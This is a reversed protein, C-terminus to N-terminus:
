KSKQLAQFKELAAKLRAIDTELANAKELHFMGMEPHEYADCAAAIADLADGRELKQIEPKNM